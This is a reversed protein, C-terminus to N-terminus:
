CIFSDFNYNGRSTLLLILQVGCKTASSNNLEKHFSLRYNKVIKSLMQSDQLMSLLWTMELWSLRMQLHKPNRLSWSDELAVLLDKITFPGQPHRVQPSYIKTKSNLLLIPDRVLINKFIRSIRTQLSIDMYSGICLGILHINWSNKM